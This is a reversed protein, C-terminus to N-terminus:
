IFGTILDPFSAPLRLFSLLVPVGPGFGCMFFIFFSLVSSLLMDYIIKSVSIMVVQNQMEEPQLGGGGEKNFFIAVTHTCNSVRLNLFAAGM